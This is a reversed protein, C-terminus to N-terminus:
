SSAEQTRQIESLLLARARALRSMVTGVPVGAIEAIERYSCDNFERLVLTERFLVPLKAIASHLMDRDAKAIMETEPTVADPQTAASATDLLQQDDTVLMTKPRNRATWTFACNRVIALLWGRSKEIDCTEIANFARVCADQVVDEADAANGTLWRALSLADDLHPVIAAEFRQKRGENRLKTRGQRGHAKAFSL